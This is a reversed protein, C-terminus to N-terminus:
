DAETDLWVTFPGDNVLSVRMEAGFVGTEVQDVGAERLALAFRGYLAEALDPSAAATFGPRRGRRTDAYLTFQSVVLASGSVDLLSLNTRGAEDSFIRLDAVKRALDAAVAETDAHGVGLLVLLGRGISAVTRGDVDVAAQEVRQLLARV